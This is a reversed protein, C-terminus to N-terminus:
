GGNTPVFPGGKRELFSSRKALKGKTPKQMRIKKPFMGRGGQLGKLITGDRSDLKSEQWGTFGQLAECRGLFPMAM